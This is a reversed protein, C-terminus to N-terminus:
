DQIIGISSEELNKTWETSLDSQALKSLSQNYMHYVTGDNAVNLDETGYYSLSVMDIRAGDPKYRYIRGETDGIVIVGNTRLEENFIAAGVDRGIVDVQTRSNMGLNNKYVVFDSGDYTGYWVQENIHDICVGGEGNLNGDQGRIGGSDWIQIDDQSGSAIIDENKHVDLGYRGTSSSHQFITNQAQVDFLGINIDINNDYWCIAVRTGDKPVRTLQVSDVGNLFSPSYTDTVTGTKDIRKIGWGSFGDPTVVLVAPGYGDIRGELNTSQSYFDGDNETSDPDYLTLAYPNPEIGVIGALSYASSEVSLTFQCNSTSVGDDAELVFTYTTGAGGLESANVAVDIDVNTTGGSTTESTSYSLWQPNRDSGNQPTGNIQDLELTISVSDGDVDEATQTFELLGDDDPDTLETPM